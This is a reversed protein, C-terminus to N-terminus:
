YTNSMVVEVHDYNIGLAPHKRIRVEIDVDEHTAEIREIIRLAISELLADGGGVEERAVDKLWEYDISDDLHGTEKFPEGSLEVLIDVEIEQTLRSEGPQIGGKFLFRMGTAEIELRM